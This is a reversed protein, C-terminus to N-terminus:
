NNITIGCNTTLFTKLTSLASVVETTESALAAAADYAAKAETQYATATITENGFSTNSYYMYYAANAYSLAIQAYEAADTAATKATALAATQEATATSSANADDVVKQAAILDNAALIAAAQADSATNTANQAAALAADANTNDTDDKYGLMETAYAAAEAMLNAATVHPDNTIETEIEYDFENVVVDFKILTVDHLPDLSAEDFTLVYMYQKGAVWTNAANAATAGTPTQEAFGPLAYYSSTAAASTGAILIGNQEIKYTLKIYPYAYGYEGPLPDTGATYGAADDLATVYTQPLLMFAEIAEVGTTAAVADLNGSTATGATAGTIAGGSIVDGAADTVVLASSTLYTYPTTTNKVAPAAEVMAPTALNLGGHTSNVNYLELGTITVKLNGNKNQSIVDVRFDVKSLMHDLTITVDEKVTPTVAESALIDIQADATAAILDMGIVGKTISAVDAGGKFPYYGYFDYPTTSAEDSPWYYKNSSSWISGSKTLKTNPIIWGNTPSSVGETTKVAYVGIEAVNETTVVGAKTAGVYSTTFNIMNPDNLNVDVLEDKACSSMAAIVGALFLFKKM